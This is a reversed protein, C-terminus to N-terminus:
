VPVSTAGPDVGHSAAYAYPHHFVELAREGDRVPVSFAAGTKTDTVAVLVQGDRECWLLDVKIGHHHRSHLERLTARGSANLLAPNLLAPDLQTVRQNAM